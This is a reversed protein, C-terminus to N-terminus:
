RGVFLVITRETIEVTRQNKEAARAPAFTDDATSLVRYWKKGKPLAPLAFTHTNWHMNYAIYCDEDERHYYVGIQRNTIGEPVQWASEGHFSIDPVGCSTKDRGLLPKAEHLVGYEKRLAILTKVYEFLEKEKGLQNWNLWATENDQCYVNNNGGQTNGFEDGALICPTGQSLLLMFFANRVQRKRLALVSKKRTPGEVGCNWSYNWDTGDRNEEGNAENHKREYSVLDAMTFGSHNTMYNCSGSEETTQRLWWMVGETMGADGKLFRRMVDQFDNRWELIKTRCLVPDRRVGEVSILMPNLIFGDVHYAIVYYQLCEVIRQPTVHETFPMHLVVEIGAKHCAKVMDKLENVADGVAYKNQPAFFFGDGYGWYNTYSPNEGFAYVPMCQIQNIGLETLYPIKEVVGAFTGKARVKSTRHKTFGRVHLSYAIVENYPIELPKDGEWDYSDELVRSRANGEGIQLVCTAHPDTVIQGGIEYQYERGEAKEKPLALFHVNGVVNTEPFLIEEEPIEEGKRYLLLRCTEEREAEVAFNVYTEYEAVGLPLPYGPFRKM